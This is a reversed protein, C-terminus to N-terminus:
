FLGTHGWKMDLAVDFREAENQENAVQSYLMLNAFRKMRNMGKMRLKATSYWARSVCGNLVKSMVSIWKWTRVSERKWLKVNECKWTKVNERKWTERKWTKVSEHKVNWKWEKWVKWTWTKMNVRKWTWAKWIWMKWKWTKIKVISMKVNKLAEMARMYGNLVKRIWLHMTCM